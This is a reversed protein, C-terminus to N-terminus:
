AGPFSRASTRTEALAVPGRHVGLVELASDQADPVLPAGPALGVVPGTAVRHAPEGLEADQWAVLERVLRAAKAEPAVAVLFVGDGDGATESDRLVLRFRAGVGAAVAPLDDAEVEGGRPIRFRLFRIPEVDAALEAVEPVVLVAGCAGAATGIRGGALHQGAVFVSAEQGEPVIRGDQLVFVSEGDGGKHAAVWLAVAAEGRAIADRGAPLDGQPLFFGDAPHVFPFRGGGLLEFVALRSQM